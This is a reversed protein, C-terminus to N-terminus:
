IERKLQVAALEWMSDEAPRAARHHVGKLRFRTGCRGFAVSGNRQSLRALAFRLRTIFSAVHVSLVFALRQFARIGIRDGVRRADLVLLADDLFEDAIAM